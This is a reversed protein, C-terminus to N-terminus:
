STFYEKMKRESIERNFSFAYADIWPKQNQSIERLETNSFVSCKDLIFDIAKKHKDTIENTPYIEKKSIICSGYISYQYYVIPVVPGFNWAEIKDHFCKEGYCIYFYGQIFYLLKQLRLNNVARNNDWEHEIVYQSISLASYEM